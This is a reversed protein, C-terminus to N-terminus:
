HSPISFFKPLGRKGEGKYKERAIFGGSARYSKKNRHDLPIARIAQIWVSKAPIKKSVVM